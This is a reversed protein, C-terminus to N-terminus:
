PSWLTSFGATFALALVGALAMWAPLVGGHWVVAAASGAFAAIVLRRHVNRSSALLGRM